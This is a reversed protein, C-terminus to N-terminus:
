ATKKQLLFSFQTASGAYHLEFKRWNAFSNMGPDDPFLEHYQRRLEQLDFGLFKYNFHEIISQIEALTYHYESAHFLYDRFGSLYFMDNAAFSKLLPQYREHTLLRRRFNKMAETTPTIRLKSIEDRMFQIHLRAVKSYVGVRFTGGPLLVKNLAHWGSMPDKLHHLVGFCDVHHFHQGLSPLDLLNGHLLSVNKINLKAAMRKAYALSIKSIDVAVIHANPNGAGLSLPHQGTGCGPVLVKFDASHFLGARSLGPDITSLIEELARQRGLNFWRPFPNEEYQARVANSASCTMEGFSDIELALREEELPEYIIRKFTPRLESSFVELSNKAALRVLPISILPQYMGLFLFDVEYKNALNAHFSRPLRAEIERVAQREDEEDNFIYENNFCQEALGVVLSLEGCSMLNKSHYKLLLTRRLKGLFREFGIDTNITRKLMALFLKDYSLSLLLPDERAPETDTDIGHCLKLQAVALRAIEQHRVFDHDFLISLVGALSQCYEQIELSFYQNIDWLLRFAVEHWEQNLPEQKLKVYIRDISSRTKEEKAKMSNNHRINMHIVTYSETGSAPDLFALCSATRTAFFEARRVRRV